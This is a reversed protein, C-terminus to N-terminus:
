RISFRRFQAAFENQPAGPAMVRVTWRYEHGSVFGPGALRLRHANGTTAVDAVVLSQTTMDRVRFLVHRAPCSIPLWQFEVVGDLAFVSQDTPAALDTLDGRCSCGEDIDGDCDNDIGDDCREIGPSTTAMCATWVGGDCREMGSACPGRQLPLPCARRAGSVCRLPEGRPPEPVAPARADGGGQWPDEARLDPHARTGPTLLWWVSAAVAAASLALSLARRLRAQQHALARRRLTAIVEAEIRAAVGRDAERLAEEAAAITAPTTLQRWCRDCNACHAAVDLLHVGELRLSRLALIEDNMPCAFYGDWEALRALEVVHMSPDPLSCLEDFCEVCGDSLQEVAQRADARSAVSRHRRHDHKSM